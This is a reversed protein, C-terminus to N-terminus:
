EKPIYYFDDQELKQFIVSIDSEYSKKSKKKKCILGAIDALERRQEPTLEFTHYVTVLEDDIDGWIEANIKNHGSVHVFVTTADDFMKELTKFASKINTSSYPDDWIWHNFVFDLYKKM